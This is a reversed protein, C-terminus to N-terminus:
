VRERCSARGIEAAVGLPVGFVVSVLIAAVSLEITAPLFQRLDRLVPRRTTFSEGLDGHLVNALYVVFQEPLPRDLGWRRMYMARVTPDKTATESLVMALPDAPVMHAILFAVLIVGFLAILALSLRRGIYRLLM